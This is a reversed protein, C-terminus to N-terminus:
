LLLWRLRGVAAGDAGVALSRGVDEADASDGRLPLPANSSMDRWNSPPWVHDFPAGTAPGTVWGPKNSGARPRGVISPIAPARLSKAGAGLTSMALPAGVPASADFRM